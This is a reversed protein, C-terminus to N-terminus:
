GNGATTSFKGTVEFIYKKQETKDRQVAAEVGSVAADRHGRDPDASLSEEDSEWEQQKLARDSVAWAEPQQVRRERDEVPRAGGCDDGGPEEQETRYGDAM